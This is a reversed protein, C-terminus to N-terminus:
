LERLREVREALPPHTEGVVRVDGTSDSGPAVPGPDVFWLQREGRPVHDISRPEDGIKGLAAILGPPYRTSAVADLDARELHERPSAHSVVREALGAPCAKAAFAAFTAPAIDDNRIRALGHALVGELEIRELGRLLGRTVVMTSRDPGHGFVAMNLAEDDLVYLSPEASGSLVCLGEVLNRYRADDPGDARTAGTSRLVVADAASRSWAVLAMAVLAAVVLGVIGTGVILAVLALVVFVPAWVAVLLMRLRRINDEVPDRTPAAPQGTTPADM